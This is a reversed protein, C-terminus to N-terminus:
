LFLRFPLHILFLCCSIYSLPNSLHNPMTNAVLGSSKPEIEPVLVTSIVSDQLNDKVEVLATVCVCVCGFFLYVNFFFHLFKEGQCFFCVFLM